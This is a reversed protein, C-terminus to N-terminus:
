RYEELLDGQASVWVRRLTDFRVQADPFEIYEEKGSNENYYPTLDEGRVMKSFLLGGKEALEEEPMKWTRFVENYYTISDGEFRLHVGTGVRKVQMSPAIRSVLLYLDLTASDRYYLDIRHQRALNEYHEDFKPDFKNAHTAGKPPLKGTYRIIRGLMDQEFAENPKEGLLELTKETNQCGLVLLLLLIPIIYKM